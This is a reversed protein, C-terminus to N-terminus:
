VGWYARATEKDLEVQSRLAEVSEFRLENRIKRIFSINLDRDYLNEDIGFIHTEVLLREDGITPRVGVNTVSPLTRGDLHAATIYVGFPPCIMDKPLALNATPFGLKSGLRKGRIVKGPVIYPRGLYKPCKDVQGTQIFKRILSSSVLVDDVIFPEMVELAFGANGATEELTVTNGSADAGFHFNFGCSVAEARFTNLLLDEVFAEPSMSHFSKDFPISFIYDVGLDAILRVKMEPSVISRVAARGMIVNKPHNSFTFVAPALGQAKAYAVTRRILSQHGLHVGDFNGLAVATPCIDMIENKGTFLKM